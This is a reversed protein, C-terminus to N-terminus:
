DITREIPPAASVMPQPVEVQSPHPAFFWTVAITLPLLVLTVEFPLAPDLTYLQGALYSVGVLSLSVITEVAGFALGTQTPSVVRGALANALTRSVGYNARLFYALALWGVWTSRWLLFTSIFLMAQAAVWARRPPRRGLGLGLLVAGLVQVSGFMGVVAADLGRVDQLYNPTLPLGIGMVAFVLFILVCLGLFGRNRLLARYRPEAPSHVVPQPAINFIIINSFLFFVAAIGYVARLGLLHGIWGGIAPSLISGASYGAYVTTLAREQTMEGRAAVIYSSMAPVVFATVGYVLLALVFVSLDPALAMAVGAVLGLLWGSIIVRRRGARDAVIGAPIFSLAAMLSFASLIEGIRAPNAGLQNLYLPQIFIFLGEGMGWLFLALAIRRNDRSM